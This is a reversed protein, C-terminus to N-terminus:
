DNCLELAVRLNDRGIGFTGWLEWYSGAIWQRESPQSNIWWLPGIYGHLDTIDMFQSSLLKYRKTTM